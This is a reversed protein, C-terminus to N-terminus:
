NMSRMEHRRRWTFEAAVRRGRGEFSVKDCLSRVLAIGRGRYDRDEPSSGDSPSTEYGEGSDEVRIALTGSEDGYRCQLDITVWGHDLCALGRERELYFRSFGEPSEKVAPDLGLVGYELANSYLEALIAYLRTRHERLEEVATILPVLLEMPDFVQLAEPGLTLVLRWDPAASGRSVRRATAEARGQSLGNDCLIELLTIDDNQLEAERFETLARVVETFLKNRDVNAKICAELGDQSFMEGLPNCAEIVGDSYLYVREGQSIPHEEIDVQLSENPVIGLPLSRSPISRLDGNQAPIILVDPIGGNWVRVLKNGMDLEVLCAALFLDTPLKEHLKRNLELAIDGIGFGKSTMAYFTDSVPIAGIAAALGHGTFDGIMAHQRGNPGHAVLVLDGNVIAMPSALCRVNPVDFAGTRIINMFVREAIAHERRLQEHYYGLEDKQKRLIGYLQEVRALATIKANLIIRNYPKTLFDDGGSQVCKFLSEDDTLATLFIVPVFADGSSEKIKRTAEYGDMVPMMVDMLVMSPRETLFIEVADAGNEAVLVRHGERRLMAQLLQRNVPDDDVVLIRLGDIKERYPM